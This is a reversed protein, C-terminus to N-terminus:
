LDNESPDYMLTSLNILTPTGDPNVPIKGINMNQFIDIAQEETIICPFWRLVISNKKMVMIQQQIKYMGKTFINKSANLPIEDLLKDNSSLKTKVDTRWLQHIAYSIATMPLICFILFECIQVLVTWGTFSTWFYSFVDYNSNERILYSNNSALNWVFLIVLYLIMIVSIMFSVSFM